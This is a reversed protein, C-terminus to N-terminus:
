ALAHLPIAYETGGVDVVLYASVAGASTQTANNVIKLCQDGATASRRKGTLQVAESISAAGDWYATQLQLVNSDRLTTTADADATRRVQITGATDLLQEPSTTGLGLGTTTIRVIETGEPLCRIVGWKTELDVNASAKLFIHCGATPTELKLSSNQAWLRGQNSAGEIELFRQAAWNWGFKAGNFTSGITFDPGAATYIMGDSRVYFKTTGGVQVELARKKGSGTTNETIDILHATYGATGSQNVVVEHRQGCETGSSASLKLYQRTRLGPNAVGLNLVGSAVDVKLVDTGDAKGLSFPVEDGLIRQPQSHINIVPM